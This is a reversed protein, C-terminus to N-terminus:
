AVKYPRVCALNAIRKYAVNLNASHRSREVPDESLLGQYDQLHIGVALFARQLIGPSANFDTHNALDILLATRQKEPFRVIEPVLEFFLQERFLKELVVEESDVQQALLVPEAEPSIHTFRVLKCDRRRKDEHYNHLITAAFQKSSKVPAAEGRQVRHTYELTRVITEQLLDEATDHEQGKWTNANSALSRARQRLSTYLRDIEPIIDPQESTNTSTLISHVM